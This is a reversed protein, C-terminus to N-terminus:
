EARPLALTIFADTAGHVKISRRLCVTVGCLYSRNNWLLYYPNLRIRLRDATVVAGNVDLGTMEFRRSEIRQQLIM